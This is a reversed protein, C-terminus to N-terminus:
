QYVRIYDVVFDQPFISNDIEPGGFNGGIAVNVIIYFPQDFPWVQDNKNPPNYTYFLNNDIYFAISEETWVAKYTHFGEEIGAVKAKKTNVTNGASSATHLSTFITEPEKGVYELIDIEGCLPWGVEDINSGLMWFAPWLGRGLPLKAKIEITGYKFEFKDKTTIRTSTYVSDELKTSITLMGDELIHNSETYIQAENNGWGCLNPCGNGLEFNWFDTNLTNGDFNEEWILKPSEVCGILFMSVCLGFFVQRM